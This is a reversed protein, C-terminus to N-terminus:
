RRAIAPQHRSGRRHPVTCRPGSPPMWENPWIECFVAPSSPRWSSTIAWSDCSPGPRPPSAPRTPSTVPRPWGPRTSWCLDGASIGTPVGHEDRHARGRHHAEVQIEAGLVEVARASPGLAIVKGHRSGPAPSRLSWLPREPGPGFGRGCGGEKTRHPLARASRPSSKSWQDMRQDTPQQWVPHSPSYPGCLRVTTSRHDDSQVM